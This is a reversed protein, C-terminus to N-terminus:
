NDLPLSEYLERNFFNYTLVKYKKALDDYVVDMAYSYLLLIYDGKTIPKEVDRADVAIGDKDYRVALVSPALKKSLRGANYRHRYYNIPDKSAKTLFRVTDPANAFEDLMSAKIESNSWRDKQARAENEEFTLQLFKGVSLGSKRGKIGRRKVGKLNERIEVTKNPLRSIVEAVTSRRRM